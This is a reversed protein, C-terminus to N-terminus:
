EISLQGSSFDVIVRTTAGARINIRASRAAFAGFNPSLVLTHPGRAVPLNALPSNGVFKGDLAVRGWPVSRVSLLGIASEPTADAATPARTAASATHQGHARGAVARSGGSRGALAGPAAGPAKSEASESVVLISTATAAPAAPTTTAAPEPLEGAHGAVPAPGGALPSGAAPAATAVEPEVIVAPEARLIAWGLLSAALLGAAFMARSPRAFPVPRTGRAMPDPQTAGGSAPTPPVEDPSPVTLEPAGAAFSIHTFSEVGLVSQSPGGAAQVLAGLRDPTVPGREQAVELCAARFGEATPWRRTPDRMLARTVIKSLPAAEARRTELPPYAQELVATLLEIPNNRQFPRTGTLVEYLVVGLAWLDSRRDSPAGQLQEPAAYNLKGDLRGAGLAAEASAIGFDLLKVGGQLSVMINQPSIDRHVIPTVVGRPSKWTHAYSVADAVSIIIALAEQIPLPGIRQILESLPLGDVYEMAIFYVGDVDGFDYVTAINPHNLQAALAMEDLFMRAAGSRQALGPLMRKLAVPRVPGLPGLQDALLVEGMGGKAIRKRILYRGFPQGEAPAATATAIAFAPGDVNGVTRTWVTDSSLMDRADANQGPRTSAPSISM